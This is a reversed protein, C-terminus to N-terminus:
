SSFFPKAHKNTQVKSLFDNAGSIKWPGRCCVHIRKAKSKRSSERSHFSLLMQESAGCAERMTRPASDDADEVDEETRAQVAAILWTDEEDSEVPAETLQEEPQNVFEDVPMMEGALEAMVTDDPGEHVRFPRALINVKNWCNQITSPKVENWARAAWEIANRMDPQAAEADLATGNDLKEIWTKQREM